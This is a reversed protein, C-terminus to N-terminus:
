SSCLFMPKKSRYQFGYLMFLKYQLRVTILEPSKNNKDTDLRPILVCNEWTRSFTIFSLIIQMHM